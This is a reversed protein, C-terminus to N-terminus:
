YIVEVASGGPLIPLLSTLLRRAFLGVASPDPPYTSVVAIRLAASEAAAAAERCEATGNHGERPGHGRGGGTWQGGSGDATAARNDNGGGDSSGDWEEARGVTSICVKLGESISIDASADIRHRRRDWDSTFPLHSKSDGKGGSGGVGQSGGSSGQQRIGTGGNVEGGGGDSGEVPTGAASSRSGGRKLLAM